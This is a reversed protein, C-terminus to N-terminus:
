DGYSTLSHHPRHSEFGCSRPGASKLDAADVSEAVDARAALKAAWAALTVPSADM